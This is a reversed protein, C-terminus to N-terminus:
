HCQAGGNCMPMGVQWEVLYYRNRWVPTNFRACWDFRIMVRTTPCRGSGSQQAGEGLESFECTADQRQGKGCKEKGM